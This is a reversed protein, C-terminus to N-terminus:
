HTILFFSDYFVIYLYYTNFYYYIHSYIIHM